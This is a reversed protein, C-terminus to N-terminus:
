ITWPAKFRDFQFGIEQEQSRPLDIRSHNSIIWAQSEEPRPSLKDTTFLGAQKLYESVNVGKPTQTKYYIEANKEYQIYFKPTTLYFCSLKLLCSLLRGEKQITYPGGIDMPIDANNFFDTSNFAEHPALQKLGPTRLRNYADGNSNIM